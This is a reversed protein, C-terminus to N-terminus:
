LWGADVFYERGTCMLSDDSALFLGMSAVHQPFISKKLCQGDMIEKEADNPAVNVVLADVMEYKNFKPSWRSFFLKNQTTNNEIKSFDVRYSRLDQDKGLYKIKLDPLFNKKIIEGIEKKKKNANTNGMNFIENKVISHTTDNSHSDIIFIETLNRAVYLPIRFLVKEIYKEANYVPIVVSIKFKNQM